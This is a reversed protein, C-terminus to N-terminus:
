AILTSRKHQHQGAGGRGNRTLLELCLSREIGNLDVCHEHATHFRGLRFWAVMPLPKRVGVWIWVLMRSPGAGFVKM